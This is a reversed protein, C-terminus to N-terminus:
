KAIPFIQDRMDQSYRCTSKDTVSYIRQKFGTQKASLTTAPHHFLATVTVGLDNGIALFALTAALIGGIWALSIASMLWGQTELIAGVAILLGAGLDVFGQALKIGGGVVALPIMTALWTGM